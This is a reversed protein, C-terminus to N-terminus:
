SPQEMEIATWEKADALRERLEIEAKRLEYYAPDNLWGGPNDDRIRDFNKLALNIAAVDPPYHKTTIEIHSVTEYGEGYESEVKKTTIKREERTYGYARTLLASRLDKVVKCHGSKIADRLEEYRNKYEAFTSVGIGLEDCVYEEKAGEQIWQTIEALRPKVYAEYKSKRGRPM